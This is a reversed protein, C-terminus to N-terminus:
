QKTATDAQHSDDTKEPAPPTVIVNDNIDQDIEAQEYLLMAPGSRRESDDVTKREYIPVKQQQQACGTLFLSLALCALIKNIM